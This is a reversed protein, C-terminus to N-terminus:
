RGPAVFPVPILLPTDVASATALQLLLKDESQKFGPRGFQVAGDAREGPALRRANLRYDTIPVQEALIPRKKKDKKKGSETNPSNLEIQPPLVEIWHDTTNMVSYAILMEDGKGRVEGLAGLIPKGVAKGDPNKASKPLGGVWDPTSIDAQKRLAQDIVPIAKTSDDRHPDGSHEAGDTSGILFSAHPQYNVVFDIPTNAASGDSILRISIEQGSQLAIALNSEAADKTKPKVFVLRPEDTSHEADFLTKDGVAVSTAPEPLRITTIFFPRLHLDTVTSGSVPLNTVTPKVDSSGIKITAPQQAYGLAAAIMLFSLGITRILVMDSDEPFQFVATKNSV